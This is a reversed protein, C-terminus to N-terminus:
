RLISFNAYVISVYANSLLGFKKTSLFAPIRDSLNEFFNNHFIKLMYITTIQWFFIKWFSTVFIKKEKTVGKKSIFLPDWFDIVSIGSSAELPSLIFNPCWSNSGCLFFSTSQVNLPQKLPYFPWLVAHICIAGESPRLHDYFWELPLKAYFFFNKKLFSTM